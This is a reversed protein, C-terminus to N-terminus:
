EEISYDYQLTIPAPWAMAQGSKSRDKPITMVLRTRMRLLPKNMNNTYNKSQKYSISVRIAAVEDLERM